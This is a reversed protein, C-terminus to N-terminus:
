NQVEALVVVEDAQDLHLYQPATKFLDDPTITRILEPAALCRAIKEPQSQARQALAAM